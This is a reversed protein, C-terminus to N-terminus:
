RERMPPRVDMENTVDNPENTVDNPENTVDDTESTADGTPTRRHTGSHDKVIAAGEPGTGVLHHELVEYEEASASILAAAIAVAPL